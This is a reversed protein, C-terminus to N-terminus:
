RRALVTFSSEGLVEGYKAAQRSGFGPWVYWRYSGPALNYARGNYRWKTQLQLQSRTPWASLVKRTRYLQVNYYTAGAVKAWMLLPPLTVRAGTKPRLLLQAKPRAVVAVGASRNGARDYAVILYRYEVGNRVASDRFATGKGSYVQKPAEAAGVGSTSRSVVVRDLDGDTPLKWTLTVLGPASRVSVGTVNGPPTTDRATPPTTVASRVVTVSSTASTKNGAEDTATFTVQTTGVPFIAPADTSVSPHATVVDSASAGALFAVIAAATAPLGDATTGVTLPPPPILVPPTTDVVRVAFTMSASNGHSDATRCVVNTRGLAFTAGPPPACIVPVPGDLADVATPTTYDVVSGNPGNAERVLDTQAPASFAPPTSDV